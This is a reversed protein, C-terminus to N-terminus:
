IELRCDPVTRRFGWLRASHTKDMLYQQYMGPGFSGTRISRGVAAGNLCHHLRLEPTAGLAEYRFGGLSVRPYTSRHAGGKHRKKVKMRAHFFTLDGQAFRPRPHFSGNETNM